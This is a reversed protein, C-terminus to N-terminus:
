SYMSLTLLFPVEGLAYIKNNLMVVSLASRPRNMRSIEEWQNTEIDYREVSSLQYTSDYGGVAYIHQDSGCVGTFMRMMFRPHPLLIYYLVQEV